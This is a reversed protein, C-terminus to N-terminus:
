VLEMKYQQYLESKVEDQSKDSLWWTLYDDVNRFGRKQWDCHEAAKRLGQYYKPYRLVERQREYDRAYPCFLCGIRHFGKDYLECYPVNYQRIFNWVDATTWDLIPSILVKDKGDVCQFQTKETESLKKMIVEKKKFVKVEAGQKARRKSEAARVGVISCNGGGLDAREKLEKCCYRINRMPLFGKERVLQFFSKKPHLRIVEPHKEIIFRVLEPPDITTVNYYATFKIGAMKALELIVCSDKGGSFALWFGHEPQMKLALREARKLFAIAAEIKTELGMEKKYFNFIRAATGM